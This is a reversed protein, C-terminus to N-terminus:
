GIPSWEIEVGGRSGIARRLLATLEADAGAGELVEVTAEDIYYDRDTSSEEELQDRLCALQRETIDGIIAGSGCETLRYPRPDTSRPGPAAAPPPPAEPADTVGVLGTLLARAREADEPNVVIDAVGESGGFEARHGFGVPIPSGAPRVLYDIGEQALVKEALPLVEPDEAHFVAVLTDDREADDMM